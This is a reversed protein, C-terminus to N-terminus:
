VCFIEFSQFTQLMYKSDRCNLLMFELSSFSAFALKLQTYSPTGQDM